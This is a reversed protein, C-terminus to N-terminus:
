KRVFNILGQDGDSRDYVGMIVSKNRDMQGDTLWITVGITTAVNGWIRCGNAVNVQGSSFNLVTGDSLNVVSTATILSGDSAFTLKGRGFGQFLFSTTGGFVKWTGAIDSTSCVAEANLSSAGLLFPIAFKIFIGKSKM